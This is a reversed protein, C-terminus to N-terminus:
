EDSKPAPLGISGSTMYTAWFLPQNGNISQSEEDAKGLLPEGTVSLDAQRLLSVGRRTASALSTHPTENILEGIVTAASNGGTVWRSLTIEKVGSCRLAALPFFIESGDGLKAAGAATRYGPLAVTRPGGAPLRVWGFLQDWPGNADSRPTSTSTPITTTAMPAAVNPTLPSAVVLHAVGLGVRDTPPASGLTWKLPDDAAALMEEIMQDNLEKQRPAFFTGAMVAVRNAESASGVERLALGPTPAYSIEITDAWLQGPSEPDVDAADEPADDNEEATVDPGDSAPLLEFPLYWLPGDPVIVLNELGTENWGSNSPFLMEKLKAATDRWSEDDPLRKGRSRNAGIEALLKSIMTPIRRGAPSIWGTTNGDRSLTAVLRPGDVVFTLLGTGPPLSAADESAVPPPCIAPIRLRQLAIQTVLSEQLSAVAANRPETDDAGERLSAQVKQRLDAIMPSPQVVLDKASPWFSEAPDTVLSRVDMLRGRLPLASALRAAHIRDTSKLVDIGNNEAVALELRGRHLPTSDLGILAIADVPDRRWTPMSVPSTFYTLLSKSSQNGISRGMMSQVLSLQYHSPMSIVPRNRDRRNNVFENLSGMANSLKGDPGGLSEGRAAAIRAAVYAGYAELRPFEVDRRSAIEIALTMAEAAADVRGASIAADAAVLYCHLSALRSERILTRGALLSTQEVKGYQQPGAAGVALQLAEGIFEYQELAAASNVARQSTAVLGSAVNPDLNGNADGSVGVSMGALLMLPTMPHVAGGLTAYKGVRDVVTSDEGVAIQGVGRMAGILSRGGPSNLGQPYKTSEMLEAALPEQASLEGMVVRRRYMMLAISRMIEIADIRKLNQSEIAGGQQLRQETMVDGSRLMLGKPVPALRVANAEPWLNTAGARIAGGQNLSTWDIAGLWGRNRVTIQMGADLHTRCLPLHGLHWYCEALMAHVPIADIWKGNIDTRSSRLASEFANIANKLDGDRYIELGTYYTQPPYQKGTNAGGLVQAHTSRSSACLLAAIMALSLLTWSRQSTSTPHVTMGAFRHSPFMPEM